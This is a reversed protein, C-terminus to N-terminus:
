QGCEPGQPTALRAERREIGGARKVIAESGRSHGGPKSEPLIQDPVASSCDICILLGDYHLDTEKGCNSCALSAGVSLQSMVPKLTLPCAVKHIM